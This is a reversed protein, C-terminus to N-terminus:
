LFQSFMETCITVNFADIDLCIWISSSRSSKSEDDKSLSFREVLYEIKYKIAFLFIICMEV